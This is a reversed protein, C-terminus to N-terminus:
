SPVSPKRWTLTYRFHFRRRLRHGPLIASATSRIEDISEKPEAIVMGPYASERRIRSVVMVPVSMAAATLHDAITKNESLGVIHLTGGTGLLERMRELAPALPMHHLAAVCTILDFPPGDFATDLFDGHVVEARPTKALRSRASIVAAEDPDIGVVSGARASLRHLLLGDGCGIDLVRAAPGPVAAVLEPHFATNHNWYASM